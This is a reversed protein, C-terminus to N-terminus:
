VPIQYIGKEGEVEHRLWSEIFEKGRKSTTFDAELEKTMGQIHSFSRGVSDERVIVTFENIGGCDDAPLFEEGDAPSCIRQNKSVFDCLETDHRNLALIEERYPDWDFLTEPTSVNIRQGIVNPLDYASFLNEMLDHHKEITAFAFFGHLNELASSLHADTIPDFVGRGAIIKTQFNIQPEARFFREFEATYLKLKELHCLYRFRSVIRSFPERVITVLNFDSFFKHHLGFPATAFVASFPKFFVEQSIPMDQDFYPSPPDVKRSKQKDHLTQLAASLAVRVWMGGAKNIHYFFIPKTQVRRRRRSFVFESAGKLDLM